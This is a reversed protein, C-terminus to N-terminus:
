VNKNGMLLMLNNISLKVNARKDDLDIGVIIEQIKQLLPEVAEHNRLGYMKVEEIMEGLFIQLEYKNPLSNDLDDYATRVNGEAKKIAENEM